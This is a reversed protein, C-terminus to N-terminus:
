PGFYTRTVRPSGFKAPTVFFLDGYNLPAPEPAGLAQWISAINGKNGVWVITKGAGEAMLRAAPNEAPIRQVTLGRDKALPGATDLNRKIGPSYIADVPVGALAPVLAAARARGKENLEETDRDGHRLIILTTRDPIAVRDPSACSVLAAFFVFALIRRRAIM